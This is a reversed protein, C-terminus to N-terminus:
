QLHTLTLLGGLTTSRLQGVLELIDPDLANVM